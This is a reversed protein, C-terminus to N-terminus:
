GTRDSAIRLDAERLDTIERSDAPIRQLTDATGIEAGVLRGGAVLANWARAAGRQVAEVLLMRDEAPGLIADGDV